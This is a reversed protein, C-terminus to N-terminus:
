MEDSFADNGATSCVTDFSLYHGNKHSAAGTKNSRIEDVVPKGRAILRNDVEVAQGIGPIQFVESPQLVIRTM